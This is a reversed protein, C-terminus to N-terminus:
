LNHNVALKKASLRDGFTTASGYEVCWPNRRVFWHHNVWPTEMRQLCTGGYRLDGVYLIRLSEYM